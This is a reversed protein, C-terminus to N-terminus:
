ARSRRPGACRPDRRAHRRRAQAQHRSRLDGGLASSSRKLGGALRQWWTGRSQDTDAHQREDRYCQRHMRRGHYRNRGIGFFSGPLSPTAAARGRRASAPSRCAPRVQPADRGSPRRWGRLSNQCAASRAAAGAPAPAGARGRCTRSGPARGGGCPAPRLEALQEAVARDVLGVPGHDLAARVAVLAVISSGSPGGRRCARSTSSARDAPGAPPSWSPLHQPARGRLDGSRARRELRQGPPRM